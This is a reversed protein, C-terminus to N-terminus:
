YAKIYYNVSTNIPRTENGGTSNIGQTINAGSSSWATNASGGGGSYSLTGTFNVTHNHSNMQHGQGTGVGSSNAGQVQQARSALDPDIWQVVAGGTTTSSLTIATPTAAVANALSTALSFTNISLWIVYYTTSVSLGTPLSGTLQVPLGSRNFNHGTVTMVNGSVASITGGITGVNGRMFQGRLDPLNFTTSGDGQGWTTGIASFLNSYSTRSVPSGDCLLYGGPVSGSGHKIITGCPAGIQPM